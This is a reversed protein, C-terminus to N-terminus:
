LIKPVKIFSKEREPGIKSVDEPLLSPSVEDKKFVNGFSVVHTLPSVKSTDLQNLKEVFGLIKELEKSFKSEEEESLEIKALEAVYKIDVKKNKMNQILKDAIRLDAYFGYIRM